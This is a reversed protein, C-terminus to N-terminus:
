AEAGMRYQEATLGMNKCIALEADTLAAADDKREGKQQSQQQGALAPNGPTADLMRKLQAIDGRGIARFEAELSPTVKGLAKAQNIVEDVERTTKEAKLAVIETNLEAMKEVPVYKAADPPAAKLTVIQTTLQDVSESKAKLAVIASVAETETASELLGLAKLMALLVPNMPTEQSPQDDAPQSVQNFRATLAALTVEDMGHLGPDNTLAVSVIRQVEGTKKDFAFVPSIYKYEDGALYGKARATWDVGPAYLGAGPRFELSKFWGAAPAPQGNTEALQTQHEYDIVYKNPRANAEAVLRAAIEPTLKWSGWPQPRGDAARFEGAPMLQVAGDGSGVEFTLAAIAFRSHPKTQATKM